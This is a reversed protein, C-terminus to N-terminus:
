RDILYIYPRSKDRGKVIFDLPQFQPATMLKKESSEADGAAGNEPSPLTNSSASMRTFGGAALSRTTSVCDPNITTMRRKPSRSARDQLRRTPVGGLLAM